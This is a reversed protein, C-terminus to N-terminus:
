VYFWDNIPFLLMEATVTVSIFPWLIVSTSDRRRSVSVSCFISGCAARNRERLPQASGTALMLLSSLASASIHGTTNSKFMVSFCGRGRLVANLTLAAWHIVYLPLRVTLPRFRASPLPLWLAKHSIDGHIMKWCSLKLKQMQRKVVSDKNVERLTQASCGQCIIWQSKKKKKKEIGASITLQRPLQM